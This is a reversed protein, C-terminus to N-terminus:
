NYTITNGNKTKVEGKKNPTPNEEFEGIRSVVAKAVTEEKPTETTEESQKKTPM